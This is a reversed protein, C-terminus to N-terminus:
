RGDISTNINVTFVILFSSIKEMFEFETITSMDANVQNFGDCPQIRNLSRIADKVDTLQDVFEIVFAEEIEKTDRKYYYCVSITVNEDISVTDAYGMEQSNLPLIEVRPFRDDNMAELQYPDSEGIMTEEVLPALVDRTAFLLDKLPESM